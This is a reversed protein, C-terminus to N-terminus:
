AETPSLRPTETNVIRAISLDGLGTRPQEPMNQTPLDAMRTFFNRMFRGQREVGLMVQDILKKPMQTVANKTVWIEGKSAIASLQASQDFAGGPIMLTMSSHTGSSMEDEQGHSIGMNMCIDDSWGQQATLTESLALMRENIRVACCIASFVPHRGAHAKFVYNAQDGSSGARRGGLAAAVEDFVEWARNVLEFFVEPLMSDAIRQSDHLRASLMCVTAQHDAPDDAQIAAPSRGAEALASDWQDERLMFLTGETFELGFLRLAPRNATVDPKLLCSRVQFRRRDPDHMPESESAPLQDRTIFDSQMAFTHKSTSRRLTVYVFSFFAQWDSVADKIAIRQLLNFINRAAVARLEQDLVRSFRDTGGPTWWQVILDRDVFFAPAEIQEPGLSVPVWRSPGMTSPAVAESSRPDPEDDQTAVHSASDAHDPITAEPTTFKRAIENMPHGIPGNNDTM